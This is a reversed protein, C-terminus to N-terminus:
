KTKAGTLAAIKNITMKDTYINVIRHGGLSLTARTDYCLPIKPLVIPM